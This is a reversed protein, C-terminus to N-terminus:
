QLELSHSHVAQYLPKHVSILHPFLAVPSQRDLTHKGNHFSVDM